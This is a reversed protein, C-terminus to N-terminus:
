YEGCFGFVRMIVKNKTDLAIGRHPQQLSPECRNDVVVAEGINSPLRVCTSPEPIHLTEQYQNYWSGDKWEQGAEVAIPGDSLNVIMRVDRGEDIHFIGAEPTGVYVDTDITYEQGLSFFACFADRVRNVTALKTEPLLVLNEGLIVEIEDCDSPKQGVIASSSRGLIPRIELIMRGLDGAEQASLVVGASQLRMDQSFETM